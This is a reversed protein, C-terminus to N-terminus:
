KRNQVAGCTHPVPGFRDSLSTREAKALAEDLNPMRHLDILKITWQRGGINRTASIHGSAVPLM